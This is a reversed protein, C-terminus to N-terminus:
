YDHILLATKILAKAEQMSMGAVDLPESAYFDLRTFPKPITFRDWSKFQWYSKPVCSFIVIKTNTKQAMVVIGDAVEHRPGKPGDPTIGIDGGNKLVRMAAILVKAGSRTTSGHITHLKMYSVIRAIIQGDFHESIVISVNPKKRLKFYLYPQFLLDGHWSAMIFPEPPVNAPLHFVKKSSFYFLRIILIGIPPFLLLALSRLLRKRM